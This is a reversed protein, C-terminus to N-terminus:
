YSIPYFINPLKTLKFYQYTSSDYYYVLNNSIRLQYEKGSNLIYTVLRYWGGPPEDYISAKTITENKLYNLNYEIDRIDESYRIEPNATEPNIGNYGDEVKIGKINEKTLLNIYSFVENFHYERNAYFKESTLVLTSGKEPMIFEYYQYGGLIGDDKYYNLLEDNLYCYFTVDTVIEVKFSFKTGKKYWGTTPFDSSIDLNSGKNVLLGYEDNDGNQKLLKNITSDSIKNLSRYSFDSSSKGYYLYHSSKSIYMNIIYNQPPYTEIITNTVINLGIVDEVNEKSFDFFKDYINFDEKIYKTDLFSYDSYYYPRVSSTDAEPSVNINLINTTEIGTVDEFSFTEGNYSTEGSYSCSSLITLSLFAAFIIKKM